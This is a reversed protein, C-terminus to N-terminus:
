KRAAAAAKNKKILADWNTSSKKVSITQIKGGLSQVSKNYNPSSKDKSSRILTYNGTDVTGGTRLLKNIFDVGERANSIVVPVSSSANKPTFPLTVPEGFTTPPPTGGGTDTSTPAGEKSKLVWWLLAGGGLLLLTDNKLHVGTKGFQLGRISSASDV